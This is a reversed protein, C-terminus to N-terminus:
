PIVVSMFIGYSVGAWFVLLCIGNLIFFKSAVYSNLGIAFYCISVSLIPYLCHFPFEAFSKGWFYPMVEYSKNSRERLFVPREGSFIALAENVAGFAQMTVIM